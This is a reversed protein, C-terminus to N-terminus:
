RDVGSISDESVSAVIVRDRGEHKARYLATDAARLLTEGDLGHDPFAAVGISATLPGITRGQHVVRM